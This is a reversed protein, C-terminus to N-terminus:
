GKFSQSIFAQTARLAEYRVEPDSYNMLEMVKIKTGLKELIKISEPLESTIRAIDNCAVALSVDDSSSSIINALQTLTKWNNQKFETINQKWFMDSRHPPSWTLKKGVIESNYEDFTTMSDFKEQLITGLTNLDDILEDDTWKRDSLTKILSLASHSILTPIGIEPAMNVINVLSAIALRMIKEKVTSRAIDLLIPIVEFESVSGNACKKDFTLLWLILLTDYQLQMNGKSSTMIKLVLPMVQQRSNWFEGRYWRKSVLGGLSQIGIVQFNVNPSSVLKTALFKLLKDIITTPAKEVNVLVVLLQTSLLYIQEDNKQLLQVLVNLVDRKLLAKTFNPVEVVVEEAFSLIYKIVDDRSIRSLLDVITDAYKDSNKGIIESRKEPQEKETSKILSAENATLLNARVYGEWPIPRVRINTQIEDLYQSSITPLIKNTYHILITRILFFFIGSGIKNMDKGTDNCHNIIKCHKIRLSAVISENLINHATNLHLNLLSSIYASSISETTHLLISTQRKCLFTGSVAHWFICTDIKYHSATM